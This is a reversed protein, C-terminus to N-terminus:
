TYIGEDPIVEALYEVLRGHKLLRHLLKAVAPNSALFPLRV